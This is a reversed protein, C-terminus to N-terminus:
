SRRTVLGPPSATCSTRRPRCGTTARRVSRRHATRRERDAVCLWEGVREASGVGARCGGKGGDAKLAAALAQVSDWATGIEEVPPVAGYKKVYGAYLTKFYSSDPNFVDTGYVPVAKLAAAGATAVFSALTVGSDGLVPVKYGTNAM